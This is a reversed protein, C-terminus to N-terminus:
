RQLVIRTGRPGEQSVIRWGNIGEAVWDAAPRIVVCDARAGQISCFTRLARDDGHALPVGALGGRTYQGTQAVPDVSRMGAFFAGEAAAQITGPEQALLGAESHFTGGAGLLASTVAFWYFDDPVNSRRGPLNVEDAGMPEDAVVPTKTGPFGPVGEGCGFGDRLENEDKATRPWEDKREPHFTLYDLVPQVLTACTVSYDGYAMLVPPGRPRTVKRMVEVPSASNQFPENAVEVLDIGGVDAVVNVIRQTHQQQRELSWDQASALAVLEVRLGRSHVLTLFARLQDDTYDSPFLPGWTVTSLVRLINAGAERRHNLYPVIDEGHIYRQFLLFSTVGRYPWIAGTSDRFVKGTVKVPLVPPIIEKIVLFVDAGEPRPMTVDVCSGVYDPAQVCVRYDGAALGEAVRNGAADAAGSSEGITVTAGPHKHGENGAVCPEGDCAHVFLTYVTAAPPQPPTPTIVPGTPPVACAGTLLFAVLVFFRKM